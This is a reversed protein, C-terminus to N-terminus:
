IQHAYFGHRALPEILEQEEYSLHSLLADTLLDVAEQLESYDSPNEIVGVLRHDIEELVEHIVQHEDILRDLIGALDHD